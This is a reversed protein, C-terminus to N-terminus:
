PVVVTQVSERLAFGLKEYLGRAPNGETVALGLEATGRDAALVVARRLLAAGTGRPARPHKFLEGVWDLDPEREFVLVGALVRDEPDVALGSAPLLPGLVAGSLLHEYLSRSTAADWAHHDPHGPPYAAELAPLVADIDRDYPTIRIGEGLVPSRWDPPSAVRRLDRRLDHAHRMPIAGRRLLEEGLPPDVSVAWGSLRTLITDVTGPGLPRVTHAWPLGARTDRLYSLAPAGDDDFAVHRGTEAATM